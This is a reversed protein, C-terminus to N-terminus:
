SLGALISPLSQDATPFRPSWGLEERVKRNSVRFSSVMSEVLPRGILLNM